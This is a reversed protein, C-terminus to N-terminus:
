LSAPTTMLEKIAVTDVVGLMVVVRAGTLVDAGADLLRGILCGIVVGIVGGAFLVRVLTPRTGVCLATVSTIDACFDPLADIVARSHSLM